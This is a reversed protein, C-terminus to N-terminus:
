VYCSEQNSQRTEIRYESRSGFEDNWQMMVDISAMRNASRYYLVRKSGKWLIVEFIIDKQKARM